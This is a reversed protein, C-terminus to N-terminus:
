NDKKIQNCINEVLKPSVDARTTVALFMEGDIETLDSEAVNDVENDLVIVDMLIDADVKDVLGGSLNIIVRPVINQGNSSKEEKIEETLASEFIEFLYDKIGNRDSGSINMSIGQFGPKITLTHNTWGDYGGNEDMHHFSTRIVVKDSTSKEVNIQCGNDIGSGHPLNNDQIRMIETMHKDQWEQSKNVLCNKYAGITGALKQIVNM